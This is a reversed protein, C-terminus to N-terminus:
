GGGEKKEGDAEAPPAVVPAIDAAPEEVELLEAKVLAERLARWVRNLDQTILGGAEGVLVKPHAPRLLAYLLARMQQCNLAPWAAIAAMLNQGTAEEAEAFANFDFRLTELLKELDM